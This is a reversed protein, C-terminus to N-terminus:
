AISVRRNYTRLRHCNACVVECKAIEAILAAESFTAMQTVNYEKDDSTHDFDMQFPLFEGNCDLCPKSRADNIIKWNREKYAENNKAVNSVHKQKNKAYWERNYESRCPRCMGNKQAEGEGCKYCIM